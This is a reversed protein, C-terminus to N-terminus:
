EYQEEKAKSSINGFLNELHLMMGSVADQESKFVPFEAIPRISDLINIIRRAGPGGAIVCIEVGQAAETEKKAEILARAEDERLIDLNSLDILIVLTSSKDLM